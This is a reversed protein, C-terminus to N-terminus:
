RSFVVGIGIALVIIGAVVNLLRVLPHKNVKYSELHWASPNDKPPM